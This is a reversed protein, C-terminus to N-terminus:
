DSGEHSPKLNISLTKKYKQNEESFSERLSRFKIETLM